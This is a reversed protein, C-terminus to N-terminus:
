LRSGGVLNQDKKNIKQDKQFKNNCRPHLHQLGLWGDAGVTAGSSRRVGGGGEGGGEGCRRGHLARRRRSWGLGPAATGDGGFFQCITFAM